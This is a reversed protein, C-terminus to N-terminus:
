ELSTSEKEKLEISYDYEIKSGNNTEFVFKLNYEGIAGGDFQVRKQFSGFAGDNTQAIEGQGFFETKGLELAEGESTLNFKGAQESNITLSFETDNVYESDVFVNFVFEHETSNFITATTCTPRHQDVCDNVHFIFFGDAIPEENDDCSTDLLFLAFVFPLITNRM